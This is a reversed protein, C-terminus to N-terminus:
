LELFEKAAYYIAREVPIREISSGGIFGKVDTREFCEQLDKPEVIPGGHCTVIVEPNEQIAVDCIRQIFECTEDMSCIKEKKIANTGGATGGVMACIMDAGTSVMCRTQEENFVFSASFFDRKRCLAILELNRTFGINSDELDDAFGDIGTFVPYNIMGSFGAEMMRDIIMDMSKFPDAAGIAGIVPVENTRHLVKAGLDAVIKNCNGYPLMTTLLPAGALRFLGTSYVILLDLGAQECVSAIIGAGAGSAIVPEKRQLKERLATLLENRKYQKV